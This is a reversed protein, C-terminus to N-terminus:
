ATRSKHRGPFLNFSIIFLKYKAYLALDVSGRKATTVAIALDVLSIGRHYALYRPEWVTPAFKKKFRHLNKFDYGFDTNCFVANMMKEARSVNRNNVDLGALPALGLSVERVGDNKMQAAATVIAHEMVGTPADTKRYMVDICYGEGGRYPLFSLVTLLDGNVDKTVFYRRDYPQDFRLDGVSFGLKFKKGAFWAEALAATEKELAYDRGDSPRYESLMVGSKSVKNVNHRLAAKQGGDLTYELLKLVAEEGYKVAKYGHRVLIEAAGGSVSNFIPKYGMKGCFEIYEAMLLETDEPKCVPDGLSMAKKGTLAYSVVGCNEAGFFYRNEECLSLYHQSDAGYQKVIHYAREMHEFM